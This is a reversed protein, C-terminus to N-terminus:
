PCSNSTREGGQGDEGYSGVGCVNTGRILYFLGQGPPPVTADVYSPAALGSM